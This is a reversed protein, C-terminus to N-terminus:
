KLSTKLNFMKYIRCPFHLSRLVITVAQLQLHQLLPQMSSEELPEARECLATNHNTSYIDLLKGKFTKKKKYSHPLSQKHNAATLRTFPETLTNIDM